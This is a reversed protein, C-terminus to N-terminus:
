RVKFYELSSTKLQASFQGKKQGYETSCDSNTDFDTRSYVSFPKIDDTEFSETDIISGNLAIIPINYNNSVGGTNSKLSLTRLPVSPRNIRLYLNSSRISSSISM